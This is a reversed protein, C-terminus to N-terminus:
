KEGLKRRTYGALRAALEAQSSVSLKRYVRRALTAVTHVSIGMREALHRRSLGDALALAVERERPSLAPLGTRGAEDPEANALKSKPTVWVAPLPLLDGVLPDLRLSVAQNCYTPPPMRRDESPKPQTSRPRPTELFAVVALMRRRLEAFDAETFSQMSHLRFRFGIKPSFEPDAYREVCREFEQRVSRSMKMAAAVSEPRADDFSVVIRKAAVRYGVSTRPKRARVKVVLDHRVLGDIHQQVPTIAFGTCEALDSITLITGASRLAELSEHGRLREPDGPGSRGRPAPHHQVGNSCSILPPKVCILRDATTPTRWQRSM